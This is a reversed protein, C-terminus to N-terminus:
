DNCLQPNASELAPASESARPEHARTEFDRSEPYKRSTGSTSSTRRARGPGRLEIESTVQWRFNKKQGATVNCGNKEEARLIKWNCEAIRPLLLSNYDYHVSSNTHSWRASDNSISATRVGSKRHAGSAFCEADRHSRFFCAPLRWAGRKANYATCTRCSAPALGTGVQHLHLTAFRLPTVALHPRFSAHLL